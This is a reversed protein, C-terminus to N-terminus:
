IHAEPVLPVKFSIKVKKSKFTCQFAQSYTHLTKLFINVLKQNVSLWGLDLPTLPQQWHTEPVMVKETIFLM